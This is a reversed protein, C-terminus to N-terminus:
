NNEGTLKAATTSGNQYFFPHLFELDGAIYADLDQVHEQLELVDGTTTRFRYSLGTTFDYYEWHSTVSVEINTWNISRGTNVLYPKNERASYEEKGSPVDYCSKQVDLSTLLLLGDVKYHAKLEALVTTDPAHHFCIENKIKIGSTKELYLQASHLCKQVYATDLHLHADSALLMGNTKLGAIRNLAPISKIPASLYYNTQCSVAVFAFLLILLTRM